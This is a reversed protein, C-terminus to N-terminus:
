LQVCIHIIIGNLPRYYITSSHDCGDRQEDLLPNFPDYTGEEEVERLLKNVKTTGEKHSRCQWKMKFYTM